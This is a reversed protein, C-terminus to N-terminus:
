IILSISFNNFLNIQAIFFYLLVLGYFILTNKQSKLVNDILFNKCLIAVIIFFLPEFYKQYITFNLAMLNIIIIMYLIKPEHKIAVYATILGLLFSSIFILNDNLIFYSMKYFFGGGRLRSDFVFFNQNYFVFIFLSILIFIEIKNLNKIKNIFIKFTENNFLLFLLYFFILSFNNSLTYFIDHSITINAIRSNILIFYLGPMGLLCSFLFLKIFNNFKQTIFYSYLYYLFLILYTQLSYIAFALFLLNLIKYIIINKDKSKLYFYNGILFFIAATLHSNPWIAAARFLPIFLFSFSFILLTIKDYTYIKSLNLYLFIPLLLSFFLYILRVSYPDNFIINLLALFAYHLPMHRTFQESGYFNFNSYNVVVPWTLNFDWRSGGTSLDENFTFGLFLTILPISIIILLFISNKNLNFM